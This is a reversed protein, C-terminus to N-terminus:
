VHARGIEDDADVAAAADPREVAGGDTHESVLLRLHEALADLAQHRRGLRRSAAVRRPGADPNAVADGAMTGAAAGVATAVDRGNGHGVQRGILAGAIGGLIPAIVSREKPQAAPAESCEQRPETVREYIPSASIVQATDVGESAAFATASFLGAIVTTVTATKYM